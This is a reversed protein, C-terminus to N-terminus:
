KTSRRRALAFTAPELGTIRKFLLLVADSDQQKKHQSFAQLRFIVEQSTIKVEHPLTLSPYLRVFGCSHNQAKHDASYFLFPHGFAHLILPSIAFDKVLVRYPRVANALPLGCTEGVYLFFSQLLCIIIGSMFDTPTQKIRNSLNYNPSSIYM